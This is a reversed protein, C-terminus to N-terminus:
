FNDDDSSGHRDCDRAASGDWDDASAGDNAAKRRRSDLWKGAVYAACCLAATTGAVVDCLRATALSDSAVGVEVKVQELRELLAGLKVLSQLADSRLSAELKVGEASVHEVSDILHGLGRRALERLM